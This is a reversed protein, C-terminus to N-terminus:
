PHLEQERTKTRRHFSELEPELADALDDALGENGHARLDCATHVLSVALGSGEQREIEAAAEELRELLPPIGDEDEMWAVLFLTELAESCGIRPLLLDPHRLVREELTRYLEEIQELNDRKMRGGAAREASLMVLMPRHGDPVQQPDVVARLYARLTFVPLTFFFTTGRGLESEVWIRGGHRLVLERSIYLGLGLGRHQTQKSNDVQYLRDFIKACDEESIGCGTDAVAVRIMRRGEDSTPEVIEARVTITGETTFKLANETLNTLVQRLRNADALVPPLHEPLETALEIEQEEARPRLADQVERVVEELSTQTPEVAMVGTQARTAEVLDEIMSRLRAVNQMSIDIFEPFEEPLDGPDFRQMVQLFNNISAIPSRLEHSVHSLFQGRMEEREKQTAEMLKLAQERETVDHFSAMLAQSGEYVIGTARVEVTRPGGRPRTITVELTEGPEVPCDLPKGCLERKSQAFLEEAAPNVYRVIDNQDLVAIADGTNELLGRQDEELRRIREFAVMLDKNMGSLEDKQRVATEFSTVLRDLLELREGSLYHTQGGITLEVGMGIKARSKAALTAFKARLRTLVEREDYPRQIISDAGCELAKLLESPDSKGTLLIVPIEATREDDKLRRCLEFGNVDPMVADTIVMLPRRRRVIELAERGNTCSVVRFRGRELLRNMAALHVETDDVLLFHPRKETRLEASHRAPEPGGAAPPAVPPAKEAPPKELPGDDSPPPAIPDPTAAPPAASLDGIESPPVARTSHPSTPAIPIDRLLRSARGSEPSGGASGSEEATRDDPPMESPQERSM